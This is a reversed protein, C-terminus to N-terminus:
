GQWVFAPQWGEVNDDWSEVSLTYGTGEDYSLQSPAGTTQPTAFIKVSIEAKALIQPESRM